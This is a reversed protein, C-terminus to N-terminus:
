LVVVGPIVLIPIPLNLVYRFLGACFLTIVVAFVLLELPRTEPSAAGSILVVAPAAVVLGVTRIALAFAVVGLCVFFPGRVSWRELGPGEVVLALVVLVLGLLGILVAVVRPMMGPGMMSLRGMELGASAWLAFLALAILSM